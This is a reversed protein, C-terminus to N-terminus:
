KGTEEWISDVDWPPAMYDSGDPGIERRRAELFDNCLAKKCVSCLDFGQSNPKYPWMLWRHVPRAESAREGCRDCFRRMM